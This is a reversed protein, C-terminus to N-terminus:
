RRLILPRWTCQSGGSLQQPVGRGGEPMWPQLRVVRAAAPHSSSVGWSRARLRGGDALNRIQRQRDTEDAGLRDPHTMILEVGLVGVPLQDVLLAADRIATPRVSERVREDPTTNHDHICPTQAAIPKRLV